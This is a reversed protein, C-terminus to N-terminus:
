NGKRILLIFEERTANDKKFAGTISSTLTWSDVKKVGRMVMCLHRGKVQVIVGKPKLEKELINSIKQTFTEQLEPAKSLVEVIRSLKSIGVTKKNPIYGVDVKYEVPLFHHPCMSFCRIDSVIIMGDYTSPFSTEAIQKLEADANIGKFIEYYARAIRKPTDKFNDDKLNLGFEKELGKLIYIAGKEILKIGAFENCNLINNHLRVHCKCCLVQLNKIDNNKRNGDRHHVHLKLIVGCRECEEGYYLFARGKYDSHGLKLKNNKKLKDEYENRDLYKGKKNKRIKNTNKRIKKLKDAKEKGYYELYSKGRLHNVREMALKTDELLYGPYKIKYEDSTMQHINWLHTNTIRYFKKKCEQCEVKKYNKM